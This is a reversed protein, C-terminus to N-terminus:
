EIEFLLDGSEVPQGVAVHIRRLTGAIEAQIENEMKMAELVVVGQGATVAEGEEVLLAVVRGPMYATVRAGSDTGEGARSANALHTLPDLVQVESLGRPSSVEFRGRGLSRIGIEHQVGDILFSRGLDGSSTADVEYETKGVRVRFHSGHRELEISEERDGLRAVLKM